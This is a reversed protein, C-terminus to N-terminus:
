ATPVHHPRLSRNRICGARAQMIPAVDLYRRPAPPDDVITTSSARKAVWSAETVTPDAINRERRQRRVGILALVASPLIEGEGVTELVLTVANLEDVGAFLKFPWIPLRGLSM